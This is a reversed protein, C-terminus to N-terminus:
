QAAELAEIRTRLNELLARDAEIQAQQAKIGEILLAVLHAYNVRKADVGNSEYTVVEPVVKGVEEAILGIDPAGSKKWQYRVGRLQEVLALPDDLTEIDTKWRRSSLDWRPSAEITITGADADPTISVNNGGVLRVGDTLGNLNTVLEGTAVKSATVAGNSLKNTNVAGDALIEGVVASPGLKASTVADNSLHSTGVTGEAIKGGTVAAEALARPTISGDALAPATVAGEALSSSSVAGEALADASIGGPAVTEAVDARLAFATSAVPLRPLADGNVAIELYLPSTEFLEDPFPTQSGLLLELRGATLQVDTYSEEWGAIPSGGTSDAYFAVNVDVTGEVPFDEELLTAQYHLVRPVQALAPSAGLVITVLLAAM